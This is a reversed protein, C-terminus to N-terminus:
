DMGEQGTGLSDRVTGHTGLVPIVVDAGALQQRVAARQDHPALGAGQGDPVQRRGRRADLGLQRGRRGGAVRQGDAGVGLHAERAAAVAVDGDPVQM